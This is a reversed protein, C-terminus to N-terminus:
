RVRRIKRVTGGAAVEDFTQGTTELVADRKTLSQWRRVAVDIYLPDIELGYARRGVREAALITTGSGMFPDLIIDGRRSCDRMADAVLAVPKVTPHLSLENMRNARFTNVGPYTWVNSRNRGHKGLEVNNQHPGDGNKFVLILEHQSRYFSGQGANTKNWVVVNKLESFVDNGAALMESLHRWDIFAFHIAGDQSSQAALRMWRTLFDSFQAPSMEGSASAFERHKIKGRGVTASIRVNYPTDALVMSALERGMLRRLDSDTCADGCLLRHQGLTWLDGMQSIAKGGDPALIEDAPDQEPDTFDAALADVEAPDFGTIELELNCEPLLSALEGLEAALVSRDWGANTAIKNDALALARKEADRLGGLIIVPVEKIRLEAAAQWRAHGCIIELNEDALIPYTWGFRLIVDALQRIQKKSHTRSNRKNPRLKRTAVMTARDPPM